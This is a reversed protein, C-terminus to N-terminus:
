EKRRNGRSHPQDLPGAAGHKMGHWSSCSIV